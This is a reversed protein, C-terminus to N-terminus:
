RVTAALRLATAQDRAGELRFTVGDQEWFLVNGALRVTDQHVQGSSDFYMFAHPQGDLWYGPRGNVTV